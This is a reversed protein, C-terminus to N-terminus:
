SSAMSLVSNRLQHPRVAATSDRMVLTTPVIVTSDIPAEHRGAMAAAALRDSMQPLDIRVTSLLPHSQRAAAIDDFGAISVDEPVRIGMRQMQIMAGLAMKDNLAFICTIDPHKTMLQEAARAGADSSRDSEVVHTHRQNVGAAKLAAKFGALREERSVTGKVGSIIGFHRHGLRLLAEGMSRAGVVNDPFVKRAQKTRRGLTVVVGGGARFSELSQAIRPTQVPDPIESCTIVIAAVRNSHLM